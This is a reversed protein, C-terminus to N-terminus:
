VARARPCAATRRHGTKTTTCKEGPLVDRGAPHRDVARTRHSDRRGYFRRAAFGRDGSRSGPPVRVTDPRVLPADLLLRARAVTLNPPLPSLATGSGPANAGCTDLTSRRSAKRVDRASEPTALGIGTPSAVAKPVRLVRRSVRVLSDLM